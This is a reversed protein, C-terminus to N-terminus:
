SVKNCDEFLQKSFIYSRKRINRNHIQPDNVRELSHHYKRNFFCFVGIQSLKRCDEDGVETSNYSCMESIAMCRTCYNDSICQPYIGDLDLDRIGDWVETLVHVIGMGPVPGYQPDAFKKKHCSM